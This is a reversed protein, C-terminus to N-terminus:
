RVLPNLWELGAFRAFHRDATHLTAAHELVLAALHADTSLNSKAEAALCLRRFITWHGPGTHLIRVSPKSLWLDVISLAQPVTFIDGSPLITTSLRIFALISQMPLGVETNGDLVNELWARAARHQQAQTNYAYILLNGDPAIM